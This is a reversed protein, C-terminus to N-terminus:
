FLMRLLKEANKANSMENELVDARQQVDSDMFNVVSLKKILEMFENDTRAIHCLPALGTNDVITPNVICHRGLYLSTLLKLKIGTAQFTMLVTMQANRILSNMEEESPDAIVKINTNGSVAKYIESGPKKGAIIFPYDVNKFVNEILHMVAKKNEAVSLNGHFLAYEGHGPEIDVKENPHFAPVYTINSFKEGFYALDTQSIAAVGTAMNLIKEYRKLKAAESYFFLKRPLNAEAEMLGRYYDHEVNHSRIVIKRDPAQIDKISATTHLGEYLVPFNDKKLKVTLEPSVRTSVIYPLTDLWYSTGGKRPYYFVKLCIDELEASRERGYEFCHLIVDVGAKKLAKIKYYIDIVGGYDAPFPVNFAILHIKEMFNGWVHVNKKM